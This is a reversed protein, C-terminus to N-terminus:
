PVPAAINGHAAMCQVYALHSQGYLDPAVAPAVSGTQAATQAASQPAPRAASSAQSSELQGGPRCAADDQQFEAYTKQEGPLVVLPAPQVPVAVCGGLSLLGCTAGSLYFRKM